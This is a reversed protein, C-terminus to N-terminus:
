YLVLVMSKGKGNFLALKVLSEVPLENKELLARRMPDYSDSRAPRLVDKAILWLM